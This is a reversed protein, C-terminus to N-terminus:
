FLTLCKALLSLGVKDLFCLLNNNMTKVVLIFSDHLKRWSRFCLKLFIDFVRGSPASESVKRLQLSRSQGFLM